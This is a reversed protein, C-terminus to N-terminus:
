AVRFAVWPCINLWDGVSALETLCCKFSLKSCFGDIQGETTELTSKSHPTSPQPVSRRTEPNRIEPPLNKSEPLLSRPEHRPKLLGGKAQRTRPRRRCPKLNRMRSGLKPQRNEPNLNETEPIPNGIESRM